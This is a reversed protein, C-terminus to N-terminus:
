LYHLHIFIHQYEKRTEEGIKGSWFHYDKWHLSSTSFLPPWVEIEGSGNLDGSDYLDTAGLSSGAFIRVRGYVSINHANLSFVEILQEKDFEINIITSSNTANLSRARQALRLTQINTLPAQWSGGTLTSEDIRNRYGFRVKEMKDGCDLYLRM